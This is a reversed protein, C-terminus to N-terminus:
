SNRPIYDREFQCTWVYAKENETIEPKELNSILQPNIQSFM